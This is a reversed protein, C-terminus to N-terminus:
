DDSERGRFMEDPIRTPADPLLQEGPRGAFPLRFMTSAWSGLSELWPAFRPPPGCGGAYRDVSRLPLGLESRHLNEAMTALPESTQIGNIYHSLHALEHAIITPTYNPIASWPSSYVYYGQGFCSDRDIWAVWLPPNAPASGTAGGGRASIVTTPTVGPVIFSSPVDIIVVDVPAAMMEQLRAVGAPASGNVSTVKWVAEGHLNTLEAPVNGGGTLYFLDWSLGLGITQPQFYLAM